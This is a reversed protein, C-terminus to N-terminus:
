AQGKIINQEDFDVNNIEALDINLTLTEFVSKINPNKIVVDALSEYANNLVEINAKLTELMKLFTRYDSWQAKPPTTKM